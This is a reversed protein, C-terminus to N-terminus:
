VQGNRDFNQQSDDVVDVVKTDLHLHSNVSKVPPQIQNEM